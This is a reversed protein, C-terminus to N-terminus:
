KNFVNSEMSRARSKFMPLVRRNVFGSFTLLSGSSNSVYTSMVMIKNRTITKNTVQYKILRTGFFYLGTWTYGKVACNPSKVVRLLLGKSFMSPFPSFAPLWCKRRKAGINEVRDFVFIMMKLVKIKNDRISEIQILRFTQLKPLSNFRQCLVFCSSDLFLYKRPLPLSCQSFFSFISSVVM